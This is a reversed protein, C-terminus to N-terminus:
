EESEELPKIIDKTILCEIDKLEGYKERIKQQAVRRSKYYIELQMGVEDENSQIEKEIMREKKETNANGIGLKTLGEKYIKQKTEQLQDAIYNIKLNIPDKFDEFHKKDVLLFPMSSNAKDLIIENTYKTDSTTPFIVPIQQQMINTEITIDFVNMMRTYKEVLSASSINFSNDKILVGDSVPFTEDYNRGIVKVETPEGYIDWKTAICNLCIYGYKTTYTFFAMGKQIEREMIESTLSNPLNTWTFRELALLSLNSLNTLNNNEKKLNQFQELLAYFEGYTHMLSKQKSM